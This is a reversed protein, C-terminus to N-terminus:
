VGEAVSRQSARSFHQSGDVVDCNDTKALVARDWIAKPM